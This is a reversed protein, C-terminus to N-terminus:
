FAGKLAKRLKELGRRVKQDVTNERLGLAKAIEKTHQGYYYRRIIIESDPLGLARIEHVLRQQVEKSQLEDQVDMQAPLEPATEDDLSCAAAGKAYSRYRDIARCKATHALWAKLSGKALDLEARANYAEFLVDNVCEEMDAEPLAGGLKGRVVAFVLGGYVDSLLALGREPNERLARLITEDSWLGCRSGEELLAKM